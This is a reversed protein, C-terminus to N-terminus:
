AAGASEGRCSQLGYECTCARRSLRPKTGRELAMRQRGTGFGPTVIRLTGGRQLVKELMSETTAMASMDALLDLHKELGLNLIQDLTLQKRDLEPSLHSTECMRRWHRDRLGPARLCRVQTATASL